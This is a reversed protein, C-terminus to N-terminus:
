YIALREHKYKGNIAYEIIYFGPALTSIDINNSIRSVNKILLGNSNYIKVNTVEEGNSCTITIKENSPNPYISCHTSYSHKYIGITECTQEVEEQSNCGLANNAIYLYGGPSALYNCVSEVECNSLSSNNHIRLNLISNADINDLGALSTLVNNYSITLDGGISGLSILATLDALSYNYGMFVQGGVSTLNNLGELSLLSFNADVFLDGGVKKLNQLGTFTPLEPNYSILLSGAISDVNELGSLTNLTDNYWLHLFGSITNVNNLGEINQLLDCYTINLHMTSIIGELGSLNTIDSGRILSYGYLHNCNPYDSQFSDIESQSYFYYNGFPLCPLIIQCGEAVEPPTNCGTANNYISVAGGPISLYDCINEIHCMSLAPNNNIILDAITTPDLNELGAMSQLNENSTVILDGGISLVNELGSLDILANAMIYLYGGISTLSNLGSLTNLNSCGHIYLDGGINTIDCLGNLNTIDSYSGGGIEVDGLINTCGPFNIQFSDIQAQTELIIGDPLCPHSFVMAIHFIILGLLLSFRKM